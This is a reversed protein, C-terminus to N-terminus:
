GGPFICTSSFQNLPRVIVTILLKVEEELNFNNYCIKKKKDILNFSYNNYIMKTQIPSCISCAKFNNFNCFYIHFTNAISQSIYRDGVSFEMFSNIMLTCPLLMEHFIFAFYARVASNNYM